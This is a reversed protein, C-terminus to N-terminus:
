LLKNKEIKLLAKHSEDIEKWKGLPCADFKNSFIKKSIPCGCEGCLSITLKRIKKFKTQLSPCSECVSLREKALKKQNDDAFYSDWWASTIERIDITKDVKM